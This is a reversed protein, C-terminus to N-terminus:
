VWLRPYGCAFTGERLKEEIEEVESRLLEGARCSV